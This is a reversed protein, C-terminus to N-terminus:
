FPLLPFFTIVKVKMFAQYFGIINMALLFISKRRKKVLLQTMLKFSLATSPPEFNSWRNSQLLNQIIFFIIEQSYM